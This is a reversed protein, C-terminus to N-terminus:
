TKRESKQMRLSKWLETQVRFIKPLMKKVKRRQERNSSSLGWAVNYYLMMTELETFIMINDSFDLDFHRLFIAVEESHKEMYSTLFNQLPSWGEAETLVGLKRLNRGLELHEVAQATKQVWSKILNDKNKVLHLEVGVIKLAAVLGRFTLGYYKKTRGKIRPFAEERKLEVLGLKKLEKLALSVTSSAAVKDKGASLDYNTKYSGLAIKKLIEKQKATLKQM